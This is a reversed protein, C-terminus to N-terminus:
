NNFSIKEELIKILEKDMYKYNDLINLVIINKFKVSDPFYAMLRQKHKEEMVYIIDAWKIDKNDVLKKAKKSTGASRTNTINSKFIKEATPSRLKNGSCIFLINM